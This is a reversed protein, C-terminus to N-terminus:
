EHNFEKLYLIISPFNCQALDKNIQVIIDEPMNYHQRIENFKLQFGSLYGIEALAILEEYQVNTMVEKNPAVVDEEIQPINKYQWTLQLHEAIKALLADLNVPKALYDNHYGEASFNSENDRTNASVILVPLYFNQDRLMKVMQWGDINPMQIDLIILDVQNEKLKEFGITADAALLVNFNLPSLLDSMLRHQNEDDDVVLITQQKGDYGSVIDNQNELTKTKRYIQSIMLKVNFTSGKGIQSELSIEGGMLHTLSRSITLGLGTGGIAQTRANRIQEFPKFILEQNSKTIGVGTDIISFSAVENRYTINFTISGQETYKIANSILNILVQRFRQKDAAVYDPLNKPMNYYFDLGKSNAKMQFMDVLEQLIVKLNFEDRQLTLRGAEIQSIELLGEILDALHDGNRKVISLTERQRQSISEDKSLLQAYGLLVNLPTRLEHSLAALYRSKAQNASEAIDKAEKLAQSTKKHADIEKALSLTQSRLEKLASRNGSLSLVFLWSVISIVILLVFFIKVLISIFAAQHETGSFPIQLYILYLIGAGFISLVLTLSIFQAFSTTMMRLLPATLFRRFVHHPQPM